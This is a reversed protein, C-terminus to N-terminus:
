GFYNNVPLVSKENKLLEAWLYQVFIQTLKIINTSFCRM